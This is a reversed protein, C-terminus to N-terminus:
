QSVEVVPGVGVDDRGEAAVSWVQDKDGSIYEIRGVREDVLDIDRREQFSARLDCRRKQAQPIMLLGYDRSFYLLYFVNTHLYEIIAPNLLVPNHDAPKGRAVDCRVSGPACSMRARFFGAMSLHRIVVWVCSPKIFEGGDRAVVNQQRM